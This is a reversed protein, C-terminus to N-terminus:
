LAYDMSQINGGQVENKAKNFFAGETVSEYNPSKEILIMEDSKNWISTDYKTKLRDGIEANKSDELTM